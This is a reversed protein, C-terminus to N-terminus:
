IDEIGLCLLDNLVEKYKEEIEVQTIEGEQIANEIELPELSNIMGFVSQLVAEFIREKVEKM